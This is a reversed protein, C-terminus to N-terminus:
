KSDYDVFVFEKKARTYVVFLLNSEQVIQWDLVAHKSPLLKEKNFTEIFFVRDCELGKSRHSTLLKISKKDEHFIEEIKSVLQSARDIKNLILQLINCKELLSIYKPSNEPNYVGDEKLDQILTELKDNINEEIEEKTTATVTEALSILGKEYDKGVIYAKKGRLIFDFFASILPKTNRCIVMDGPEAEMLDGRRVVGEPSDPHAEIVEPYVSQALAVISKACRYTVTLPLVTTNFKKQIQQFSDINSGQFGYISQKEDGVAILRGGPKRIINEILQVQANNTDQSEDLCVYDYQETILEPYKAPYFIMDSYDIFRLNKLKINEELIISAVLISEPNAEIAYKDCLVKLSEETFDSLTLRAYNCLEQITFCKKYVEKNKVPFQELALKFYKNEDMIVGKFRAMIMRCGLSHMTCAKVHQPVRHKLENVIANSFSLFIIKKLRPILKLIELLTYTKGAGPCAQVAIMDKTERVGNFVREQAPSSTAM